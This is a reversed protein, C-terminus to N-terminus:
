GLGPTKKGLVKSLTVMKHDAESKLPEELNEDWMKKYESYEKAVSCQKRVLATREKELASVM